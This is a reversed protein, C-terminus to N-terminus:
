QTKCTPVEKIEFKSAGNPGTGNFTFSGPNNNQKWVPLTPDPIGNAVFYDKLDQLHMATLADGSILNGDADTVRNMIAAIQPNTHKLLIAAPSDHAALYSTFERIELNKVRSCISLTRLVDPDCSETTDNVHTMDVALDMDASMKVMVSGTVQNRYDQQGRFDPWLYASSEAEVAQARFKRRLHRVVDASRGAFGGNVIDRDIAHLRLKHFIYAVQYRQLSKMDLPPKLEQALSCAKAGLEPDSVIQTTLQALLQRFTPDQFSATDRFHKLLVCFADVDPM